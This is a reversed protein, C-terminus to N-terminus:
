LESRAWPGKTFVGTTDTAVALGKFV